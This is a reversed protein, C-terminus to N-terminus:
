LMENMAVTLKVCELLGIASMTTMGDTMNFRSEQTGSDLFTVIADTPVFDLGDPDLMDGAKIARVQALLRELLAEVDDGRTTDPPVLHLVNQDAM